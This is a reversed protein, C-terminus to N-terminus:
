ILWLLAGVVVTAVPYGIALVLSVRQAAHTSGPTGSARAVPPVLPEAPIRHRLYLGATVGLLLVGVILVPWPVLHLITQKLVVNPLVLVAMTVFGVLLAHVASLRALWSIADRWVGLLVMIGALISMGIIQGLTIGIETGNRLPDVTALCCVM